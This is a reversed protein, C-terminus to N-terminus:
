FAVLILHSSGAAALAATIIPPTYPPLPALEATCLQPPPTRSKASQASTVPPGTLAVLVAAPLPAALPVAFLFLFSAFFVSFLFNIFTSILNIFTAILHCPENIAM